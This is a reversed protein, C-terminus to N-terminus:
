GAHRARRRTILWCLIVSVLYLLIMPAAFIFLNVVDTTPSIIAALIFIILIAHRLTKIMFRPTLIKMMALFSVIIPMQFVAGMGLIVMMAFDFYEDMSIQPNYPRGVGILFSCAAPFAVRYAFTCGALFLLSSFFVFPVFWRREKQYLGPSIFRWLQYIIVPASLFVAFCFAVKLSVTFPEQLRLFVLTSGKPLHRLLPLALQGYIWDNFAFTVGFAVAVAIVSYLLCSRLEQLHELLTMKRLENNAEAM